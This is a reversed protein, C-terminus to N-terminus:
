TRGGIVAAPNRAYGPGITLPAKPMVAGDLDSTVTFETQFIPKHEWGELLRVTVRYPRDKRIGALGPTRIAYQRSAPWLRETVLIPPGGVPDEFRAEIVSANAVPRLLQATFGYSAEALRYNFLFGKGAIRLYPREGPPTRTAWGIALLVALLGAGALVIQRLGIHKLGKRRGGGNAM